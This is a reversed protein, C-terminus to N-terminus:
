KQSSPALQIKSSTIPCIEDLFNGIIDWTQAINDTLIDHRDAKVITLHKAQTGLKDMLIPASDISVVPDCDAYLILSRINIQPLFEEMQQILRRLEYLSRAPIHRYNVHPHETPNEIFPKVGELSSVWRVLKNMGHLLPVLMLNPNVFKVPASVAIVGVVKQKQEAALKLALAGGTSFGTVVIRDCYHQLVTLGKQVSGYWDEWSQERLAYPSTGHGRLRVAFVTYDQQVLYEGYDRLQAPSALLGHVLLIGFGNPNEPQLLFPSPDADATEQQNIDDYRSESYLQKEWKLALCEDDFYWNSLQHQINNNCTKLAGLIAARVAQIPAAENDYVAILNEMRITDLDYEECLKPLFQYNDKMQAILGDKEAICIFHEFRKGKGEPLDSYELPNM